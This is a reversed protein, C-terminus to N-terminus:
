GACAGGHQDQVGLLGHALGSRQLKAPGLVTRAGVQRRLAPRDHASGLRKDLCSLYARPDQRHDALTSSAVCAGHGGEGAQRCSDVGLPFAHSAAAQTPSCRLEASGDAHTSPAPAAALPSGQHGPSGLLLFPSSAQAASSVTHEPPEPAASTFSKGQLLASRTRHAKSAGDSHGSDQASCGVGLLGLLQARCTRYMSM